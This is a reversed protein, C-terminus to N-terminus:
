DRRQDVQGAPLAAQLGFHQAGGPARPQDGVRGRRTQLVQQALEGRTRGHHHQDIERELDRRDPMVRHHDAVVEVSALQDHAAGAPLAVEPTEGEELEEPLVAIVPRHERQRGPAKGRGRGLGTEGGRHGRELLRAPRALRAFGIAHQQRAPGAALQAQDAQAVGLVRELVQCARLAGKAARALRVGCRDGREVIERV